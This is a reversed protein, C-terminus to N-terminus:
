GNAGGLPLFRKGHDGPYPERHDHQDTSIADPIGGPFATCTQVTVGELEASGRGHRMGRLRACQACLSGLPPVGM